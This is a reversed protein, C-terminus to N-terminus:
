YIFLYDNKSKSQKSYNQQLDAYSDSDRKSAIMTKAHKNSDRSYRSSIESRSGSGSIPSKSKQM